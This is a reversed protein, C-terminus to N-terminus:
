GNANSAKILRDLAAAANGTDISQAALRVGDALSEAKGAVVLGAGANM